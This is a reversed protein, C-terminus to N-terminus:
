RRGYYNSLTRLRQVLHSVVAAQVLLSTVFIVHRAWGPTFTTRDPRWVHFDLLLLGYSLLSLVAMFWVFRVRFWLGAGVILLPYGVVLPSAVGDAVYLVAFLLLSDLTGWVFRAPVSWRRSALFPQFVISAVAWIVLLVSIRLHFEREVGGVAYNVLEIAYFVGLAGLRSALAPQRRTWAVLRQRMDPPRADLPEGKSFHELDAVLAEASAYRDEPAKALCKLCIRELERPVRPNVRRPLTPDRSLVQLVTELPNSESFPPRGTLLEYLIAGLSYLDSTPGVEAARGAAQEPSMYSPTGAIVGTATKGSDGEFVKALGFDTVYPTEDADLLINSPKLDRHVIGQEHLRAVAGAVATLLRVADLTDIPGQALRQALSIGDVYEMAFFHQGHLQGVEHIPVIHPHRLRAAAKAEAQFRALHEDSGLHSALIMKVAVIRDLAKQRAKFVVGMGGRGIEEILEYPGFDRGALTAELSSGISEESDEPAFGELVDLCALASALEPQERLLAERDPREGAHMRELYDDLLRFLEHDPLKDPM